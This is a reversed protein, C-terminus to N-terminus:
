ERPGAALRELVSRLHTNFGAPDERQVFHGLGPMLILEFDPAYKRNTEVNTPWRDSNICFIPVEVEPVSEAYDYQISSTLASVAVESPASAMDTAIATVLASDAAEPFMSRVWEAAVATFDAELSALFSEVREDSYTQEFDQFTDVAVLARVRDGLLRAAELCVPGGMSHGVLVIDRLDLADAVAAVDHAFAEITYDGRGLGSEGHGALDIAVVKHDSAFADLQDEWYSRDCSWCHVFVVAPAGSGRTEYVIPISDYSLVTDVASTAAIPGPEEAQNDCGFLGLLLVAALGLLARTKM